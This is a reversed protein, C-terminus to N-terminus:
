VGVPMQSSGGEKVKHKLKGPMTIDERHGISGQSEQREHERRKFHGGKRRKEEEEEGM